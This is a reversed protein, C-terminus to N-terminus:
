ALNCAWPPLGHLYEKKGSVLSEMQCHNWIAYTVGPLGFPFVAEVWPLLTGVRSSLQRLAIIGGAERLPSNTSKM